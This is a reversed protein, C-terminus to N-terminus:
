DSLAAIGSKILALLAASHDIQITQDIRFGILQSM